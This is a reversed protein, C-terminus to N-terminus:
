RREQALVRMRTQKEYQELRKMEPPFLKKKKDQFEEYSPNIGLTAYRAKISDGFAIVPTSGKVIPLNLPYPEMARRIFSEYLLNESM